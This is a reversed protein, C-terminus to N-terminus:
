YSYNIFYDVPTQGVPLNRYSLFRLQISIELQVNNLCLLADSRCDTKPTVESNLVWELDM